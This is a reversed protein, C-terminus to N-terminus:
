PPSSPSPAAHAEHFNALGLNGKKRYYDALLRNTAPDSPASRLVLKAWDIAETERGHNMLWRAAQIRLQLDLPHRELQHRIESLEADDRRIQDIALREAGAEEKKGQRTLVLM